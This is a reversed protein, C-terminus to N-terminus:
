YFFVISHNKKKKLTLQIKMWFYVCVPQAYTTNEKLALFRHSHTHGNRQTVLSISTCCCLVCFASYCSVSDFTHKCCICCFRPWNLLVPMFLVYHKTRVEKCVQIISLLRPWNFYFLYTSSMKVIGWRNEFKNYKYSIFFLQPWNFCSLYSSSM